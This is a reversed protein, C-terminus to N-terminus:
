KSQIPAVKKLADSTFLIKRLPQETTDARCSAFAIGCGTM